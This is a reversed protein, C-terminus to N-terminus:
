AVLPGQLTTSGCGAVSLFGFANTTVAAAASCMSSTSGVFMTKYDNNGLGSVITTPLVNYVDRGFTTSAYFSSSPVTNPATGSYPKGLNTAGDVIEGLDVGAALQSAAVGNSQSIFNAASFGIIVQTNAFTAGRAALGAADNEQITAGCTTVASAMQAATVGLATNWFAYTGSGLQIGCPVINVGGITAPGTTFLSVLQAKTLSTVPTVGNAFYGFSMGDRGFPIYTLDTGTGSPGASSRAFNVLGSVVKNGGCNTNDGWTAGDIARSLARRGNTSGNPRLFTAGPAQTTICTTAIADWSAIQRKGSATSSQLPTYNFANASGGFANLVDQTTDSGVAVLATFQKPDAAAPGGGVALSSLGLATLVVAAAVKARKPRLVPTLRM